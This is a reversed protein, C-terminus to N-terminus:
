VFTGRRRALTTIPQVCRLGTREAGVEDVVAKVIELVLRCRNEISGGYEDTRQNPKPKIFQDIIYQM